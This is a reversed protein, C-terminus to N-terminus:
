FDFSRKTSLSVNLLLLQIYSLGTILVNRTYIEFKGSPGLLVAVLLEQFYDVHGLLSLKFVLLLMVM